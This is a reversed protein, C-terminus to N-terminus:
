DTPEIELAMGPGNSPGPSQFSNSVWPGQRLDSPLSAESPLDTESQQVTESQSGSAQTKKLLQSAQVQRTRPILSKPRTEQVALKFGTM